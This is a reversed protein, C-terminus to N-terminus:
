PTVNITASTISDVVDQSGKDIITVDAYYSGTLSITVASDLRGQPGMVNNFVVEDLLYSVGDM